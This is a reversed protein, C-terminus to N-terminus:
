CANLKLESAPSYCKRWVGNPFLRTFLEVGAQTDFLKFMRTQNRTLEEDDRALQFHDWLAPDKQRVHELLAHM